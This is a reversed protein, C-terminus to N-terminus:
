VVVPEFRSPDALVDAALTKRETRDAFNVLRVHQVGLADAKVVEVLWESDASRIGPRVDRFRQGPEITRKAMSAIYEGDYSPRKAGVRFDSTPELPLVGRNAYLPRLAASLVSAAATSSAIAMAVVIM